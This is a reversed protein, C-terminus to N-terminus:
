YAKRQNNNQQISFFHNFGNASQSYCYPKQQQKRTIDPNLSNQNQVLEEIIIPEAEIEISDTKVKKFVHGDLAEEPSKRKIEGQAHAKLKYQLELFRKKNNGIEFFDRWLRSCSDKSNRGSKTVFQEMCSFTATFFQIEIKNSKDIAKICSTYISHFSAKINVPSLSPSVIMLLSTIFKFNKNMSKYHTLLMDLTPAVDSYRNIDNKLAAEYATLFCQTALHFTQDDQDRSITEGLKNFLIIVNNLLANILPEYVDEEDITEIFQIM